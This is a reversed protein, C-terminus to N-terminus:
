FCMENVSYDTEPTLLVHVTVHQSDRHAEDICVGKVLKNCATITTSRSLYGDEDSVEDDSADLFKDRVAISVRTTSRLTLTM